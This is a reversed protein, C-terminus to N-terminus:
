DDYRHRSPRCLVAGLLVGIGLAMGIARMPQKNVYETVCEQGQQWNHSVTSKISDLAQSGREAKSLFTKKAAEVAEGTLNPLQSLLDDLDKALQNTDARLNARAASADASSNQPNLNNPDM